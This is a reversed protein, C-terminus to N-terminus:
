KAAEKMRIDGTLVGSGSQDSGFRGYGSRHKWTEYSAPYRCPPIADPATRRFIHCAALIRLVRQSRAVGQIQSLVSAAEEMSCAVLHTTQAPELPTTAPVTSSLGLAALVKTEVTDMSGFVFEQFIGACVSQALTTSTM